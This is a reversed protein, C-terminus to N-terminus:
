IYVRLVNEVAGRCTFCRSRRRGREICHDCFGGHGCPLFCHTRPRSYCCSCTIRTALSRSGNLESLAALVRETRDRLEDNIQKLNTLQGDLEVTKENLAKAADAYTDM